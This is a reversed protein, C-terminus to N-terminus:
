VAEGAVLPTVDDVDHTDDGLLRTIENRAAESLMPWADIVARLRPDDSADLDDNEAGVAGSNAARQSTLGQLDNSTQGNQCDTRNGDM